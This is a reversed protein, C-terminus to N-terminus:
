NVLATLEDASALGSHLGSRGVFTPTSIVDLAMALAEDRALREAAADSSACDIVGNPDSVGSARVLALWDDQTTPWSSTSLLRDHLQGFEGDLEACISLLAAQEAHPHIARLPLHVYMVEVGGAAVERVAQEARRCYPCQYDFFAVLLDTGTGADARSTIEDWQDQIRALTERRDVRSDLWARVPGAPATAAVLVFVLVVLNVVWDLIPRAGGSSENMDGEWSVSGSHHWRIAAETLQLDILSKIDVAHRRAAQSLHSRSCGLRRALSSVGRCPGSEGDPVLTGILLRLGADLAASSSRALLYRVEPLSRSLCIALRDVEGVLVVDGPKSSLEALASPRPRTYMVVGVTRDLIFRPLSARSETAAIWPLPALELRNAATLPMTSAGIQRLDRTLLQLLTRDTGFVAVTLSGLKLSASRM